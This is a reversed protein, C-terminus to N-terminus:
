GPKHFFIMQPRSIERTGDPLTTIAYLVHLGAPLGEAEVLYPNDRHTQTVTLPELGAFWEVEVGAGVPGTALIPFPKDAEMYHHQQGAPPPGSWGGTPDFRPFHIVTKPWNSAASQWLRATLADPFWSADGRRLSEDADAWAVAKPFNSEITTMDGLWGDEEKLRKLEVPGKRYDPREPVRLDIVRDFYPLVISHSHGPRHYYWWMPAVGWLAGKERVPKDIELWRTLHTTDHSGVVYLHPTNLVAPHDSEWGAAGILEPAAAITREPHLRALQATHGGAFSIGVNVWPLNQLPYGVQEGLEEIANAVENPPLAGGMHVVSQELWLYYLPDVEPMPWVGEWGEMAEPARAKGPGRKFALRERRGEANRIVVEKNSTTYILARVDEWKLDRPKIIFLGQSDKVEDPKGERVSDAQTIHMEWRKGGPDPAKFGDPTIPPQYTPDTEFRVNDYTVRAPAKGNGGGTAMLGVHVDQELMALSMDAAVPKWDAGDKSWYGRVAPYRREIRLWFGAEAAKDKEVGELFVRRTGDHTNLGVGHRYFWQIAANGEYGDYRLAFMRDREGLGTRLAIGYKYNKTDAEAAKIRATFTWALADTPLAAFTSDDDSGLYSERGLGKVTFVGDHQEVRDPAAIGAKDLAYTQLRPPEPGALAPVAAFFLVAIPPTPGM